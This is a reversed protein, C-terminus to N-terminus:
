AGGPGRSQWVETQLLDARQHPGPGEGRVQHRLHPPHGAAPVPGGHHQGGHDQHSYGRAHLADSGGSRQDGGPLKYKTFGLSPIYFVQIRKITDEMGKSLEYVQTKSKGQINGSQDMAPGRSPRVVGRLM